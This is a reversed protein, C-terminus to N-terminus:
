ASFRATCVGAGSKRLADSRKAGAEAAQEYVHKAAQFERRAHHVNGMGILAEILRKNDSKNRAAEATKEFASQATAYDNQRLAVAALGAQAAISDPKGQLAMEFSHRATAVDGRQRHLEALGVHAQAFSGDLRLAHRYANDADRRFGQMRNADGIGAFAAASGSELSAAKAFALRAAEFRNMELLVQGRGLHGGVFSRDIKVAEDYAQYAKADNGQAHYIDGLRVLVSATRGRRMARYYATIADDNMGLKAYVDGLYEYRFEGNAGMDIARNYAILAAEYEGIERYIHGLGIHPEVLVSGEDEAIATAKEWAKRADDYHKLALQADGLGIQVIANKPDLEAAREWAICSDEYNGTAQYIEGLGILPEVATTDLRAARAFHNIAQPTEKAAQHIRGMACYAKAYTRDASITAEYCGMAEDVRGLTHDLNGMEYWADACNEDLEIAREFSQRASEWEEAILHIRGLYVHPQPNAPSLEASELLVGSAQELQRQEFLLRGLRFHAAGDFPNLRSANSYAETAGRVDGAQERIEGLKYWGRQRAPSIHTLQTFLTETEASYGGKKATLKSGLKELGQALEQKLVRSHEPMFAVVDDFHTRSRSYNGIELFYQGMRLQLIARREEAGDGDFWGREELMALSRLLREVHRFDKAAVLFLVDLLKRDNQAWHEYWEKGIKLLGHMLDTSYAWGEVYRPIVWEWGERSGLWYRHAAVDLATQVWDSDECREELLPMEANWRSLREELVTVARENLRQVEPASRRVDHRLHNLLFREPEPHLRAQRAHVSAYDREMRRLLDDLDFEGGAPMLMARLVDIDGRALALAYLIQRDEARVVHRLYSDTMNQVLGTASTAAAPDGVIEEISAGAKWIDAAEHVALPIGNTIEIIQQLEKLPIPRNPARLAFYETINEASLPELQMATVAQGFDAEYGKFYEDGFRRSRFLDNRGAMIWLVNPGATRMMERVWIDARDIKEYSDFVVILPKKGAVRELGRAIATAQQEHPNLFHDLLEPKLRARITNDLMGRMRQAQEVTLEIGMETFASVLEEGQRPMPVKSRILGALVDASASRLVGFEDFGDKSQSMIAAMARKEAEARHKLTQNYMAFQKGWKNRGAAARIVRFVADTNVNRGVQLGPFKKAEDAWDIWLVDFKGAFPKVQAMEVFRKALASKGIGGQGQLLVVSASNRNGKRSNYSTLIPRFAAQEADRNVFFRENSASEQYM